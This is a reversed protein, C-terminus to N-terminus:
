KSPLTKTFRETLMKTLEEESTQPIKKHKVPKAIKKKSEEWLMAFEQLEKEPLAKIQQYLFHAANM